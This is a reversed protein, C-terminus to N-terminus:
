STGSPTPWCRCCSASNRRARERDAPALPLAKRPLRDGCLVSVGSQEDIDRHGSSRPRGRTRPDGARARYLPEADAYRGSGSTSIPWITSRDRWTPIIAAGAGKRPDGALAQDAARGRCLSGPGQRGPRSQEAADRGRSAGSRGAKEYIALARRFLPESDAHRGHKEYLTALNNLSQASTPIGPGSRSKASRWRASSCRNPRPM